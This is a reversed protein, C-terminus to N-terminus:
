SVNRWIKKNTWTFISTSNYFKSAHTNNSFNNKLRSGDCYKQEAEKLGIKNLESKIDREQEEDWLWVSMPFKKQNYYEVEKYLKEVGETLNNNLLTIINFTDAPLGCDVAIYDKTEKISMGPVFQAVYSTKFAFNDILLQKYNM